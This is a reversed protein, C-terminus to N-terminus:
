PFLSYVRYIYIYFGLPLYLWLVVATEMERGNDRYSGLIARINSCANYGGIGVLFWYSLCPSPSMPGSTDWPSPNPAYCHGGYPLTGLRLRSPKGDLASNVIDKGPGSLPDM